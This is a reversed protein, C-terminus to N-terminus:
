SLRPTKRRRWRGRAPRAAMRVLAAARGPELEAGLFAVLQALSPFGHREGTRPDELCYHWVAQPESHRSRVEWYRLVYVGHRPPKEIGPM